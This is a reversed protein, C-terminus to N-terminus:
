GRFVAAQATSAQTESVTRLHDLAARRLDAAEGNADRLDDGRRESAEVQHSWATADARANAAVADQRSGLLEGVGSSVGGSGDLVSGWSKGATESRISLQAAGGSATLGGGVIQAVGRRLGAARIADAERRMANVQNSELAQRHEDELSQQARNDQRAERAHELLTAALESQPDGVFSDSANEFYSRAPSESITDQM